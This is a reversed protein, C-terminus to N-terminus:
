GAPPPQDKGTRGVSVAAKIYHDKPTPSGALRRLMSIQGIHTAADLIPGQLMRLVTEGDASVGSELARDLLTLTEFFRDVEMSWDDVETPRQFEGGELQAQTYALITSVHNLMKRPTMVGQGADFDAFGSPTAGLVRSARYALAALTHRLLTTSDPLTSGTMKIRETARARM